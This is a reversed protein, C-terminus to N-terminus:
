RVKDMTMITIAGNVRDAEFRVKYGAKVTDLMAPDSAVSSRHLACGDVGASAVIAFSM